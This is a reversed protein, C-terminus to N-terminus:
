IERCMKDVGCFLYCFAHYTGSYAVLTRIDKVLDLICSFINVAMQGRHLGSYRSCIHWPHCVRVYTTHKSQSSCFMATVAICLVRPQQAIGAKINPDWQTFSSVHLWILDKPSNLRAQGAGQFFYVCPYIGIDHYSLQFYELGQSGGSDSLEM